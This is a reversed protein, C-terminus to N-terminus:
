CIEDEIQEFAFLAFVTGIPVCSQISQAYDTQGKRAEEHKFQNSGDPGKTPPLDTLWEYPGQYCLEAVETRPKM